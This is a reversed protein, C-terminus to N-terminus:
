SFIWVNKLWKHLEDAAYTFQASWDQKLLYVSNLIIDYRNSYMSPFIRKVGAQHATKGPNVLKYELNLLYPM